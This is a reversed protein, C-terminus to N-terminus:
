QNAFYLDQMTQIALSEVQPYIQDHVLNDELYKLIQYDM